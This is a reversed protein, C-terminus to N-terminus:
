PRLSRVLAATAGARDRYLSLIPASGEPISLGRLRQDEAALAAEFDTIPEAGSSVRQNHLAYMMDVPSRLMAVIRAAPEFDHILRPAETSYIYRVSAEGVRKEDRAERFLALYAERDAGHHLNKAVGATALDPAFYRPSKRPSIFIEPHGRLYEYLSTTGSKAAGIIFFDPTRM